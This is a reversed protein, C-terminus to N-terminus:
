DCIELNKSCSSSIFTYEQLFTEGGNYKKRVLIRISLQHRTVKPLKWSYDRWINGWVRKKEEKEPVGIIQINIYKISDWFDRLSDEIRKM